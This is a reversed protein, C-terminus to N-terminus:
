SKSKRIKESVNLIRQPGALKAPGTQHLLGQPGLVAGHTVVTHGCKVVVAGPHPVTHSLVVVKVKDDEEYQHHDHLDADELIMTVM